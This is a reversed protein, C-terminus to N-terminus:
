FTITSYNVPYFTGVIEAKKAMRQILLLVQVCDKDGGLRNFPGPMFLSLYQAHQNAQKADLKRLDLDISRAAAQMISFSSSFIDFLKLKSKNISVFPM